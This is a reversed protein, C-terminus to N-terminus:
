RAAASDPMIKGGALYLSFVIRWGTSCTRKMRPVQVVVIAQNVPLHFIVEKVERSTKNTKDCSLDGGDRGILGRHTEPSPTGAIVEEIRVQVTQSECTRRCLPSAGTTGDIKIGRTYAWQLVVFSVYHVGHKLPNFRGSSRAVM